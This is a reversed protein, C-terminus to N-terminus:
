QIELHVKVKAVARQPVPGIPLRHLRVRPDGSVADLVARFDEGVRRATAESFLAGDYVVSFELAAERPEALFWFRTRAEPTGAELEANEEAQIVLNGARREREDRLHNQLTLGVDFVPNRRADRKVRLEDLLWDLPYLQNAYADLTTERVRDLLMDFRDDGAVTDRLAVVNLYPGVQRELEERVRGAVPSGVIVDEEGTSRYLYAKLASLLVMFLTAGSSSALDELQQVTEPGVQFHHVRPRMEGSTGEFDAPLNLVPLRGSLKRLWYERM